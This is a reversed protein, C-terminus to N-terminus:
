SIQIILLAVWGDIAYWDEKSLVQFTKSNFTIQDGTVDRDVDIASQQVYANYYNKQFDLGQQLYLHREIPQISGYVTIPANYTSVEVGISNVARSSFSAYQMPSQGIATLASMLINSGPIM